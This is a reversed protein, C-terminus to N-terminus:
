LVEDSPVGYRNRPRNDFEDLDVGGDPPRIGAKEAKNLADRAANYRADNTPTYSMWMADLVDVLRQTLAHMDSDFGNLRNLLGCVTDAEQETSFLTGFSSSQSVCEWSDGYRRAQWQDRDSEGRVVLTATEVIVSPHAKSLDAFFELRHSIPDPETVWGKIIKIM